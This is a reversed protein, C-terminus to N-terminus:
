GLVSRLTVAIQLQDQEEESVVNNLSLKWADGFNTLVSLSNLFVNTIGEVLFLEFASPVLYVFIQFTIHDALNSLFYRM